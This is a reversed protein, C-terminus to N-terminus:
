YHEGGLGNAELSCLMRAGYNALRPDAAGKDRLSIKLPRPERALSRVPVVALDEAVESRTDQCAKRARRVREAVRDQLLGACRGGVLVTTVSDRRWPASRQSINEM